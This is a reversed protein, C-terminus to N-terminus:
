PLFLDYTQHWSTWMTSTHNPNTWTNVSGDPCRVDPTLFRVQAKDVGVMEKASLKAWRGLEARICHFYCQSPPQLITLWRQVLTKSAAKTRVQARGTMTDTLWCYVCVSDTHLHVTRAQLVLNFGKVMAYLEALNIHQGNNTPCIWCVDELIDGHKELVASTALSSADVWANLEEGSVSWNGWVPDDHTARELVEEMVWRFSANNVPDDWGKTVAIVRRKLVRTIMRLWGCVPFHVVLKGGMSFVTHRTMEAPPEPIATGRKWCLTNCERWVKLGLEKVRHKLRETEKCTLGFSELKVMVQDAFIIEENVHWWHLIINGEDDTGRTGVSYQCYGKHDYAGCKVQPGVALCYREGKILVTQYAWLSNHIWVYAMQLDLLAVNVGQQHWERLKVTCVDANVTFTDVHKNLERYDMVTRVKGKTHQVIAM